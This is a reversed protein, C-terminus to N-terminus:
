LEVSYDEGDMVKKFLDISALSWKRVKSNKGPGTKIQCHYVNDSSRLDVGKEDKIRNVLKNAGSWHKYGLRTAVQSITLPHTQNPNTALAIGLLKPLEADQDAVRELVDYDAEVKGSPIDHRVLKMTRAALARVLKPNISTLASQSKLAEFIWQFSNAHIANVRFEKGDVSFVSQESPNRPLESSWFVQYVNEILGSEDAVLEGIDRLIGKVNPDGLKYGFIFVPHEAFYTLLKASIYKKKQQWNQYDAQTLVISAPDSVDGHIHFIEGFSNTNYRIITQGTVPVYGDFIAELSMDYNTTIIAHPRIASLAMIEKQAHPFANVTAPTLGKLYDCVLYKLFCDKSKGQAFLEKPFNQRGSGWAWEFVLGSLESGIAVPDAEHKQNYYEFKGEQGPIM